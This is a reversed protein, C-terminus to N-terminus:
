MMVSDAHGEGSGLQKRSGDGGKAVTAASIGEMQLLLGYYDSTCMHDRIQPKQMRGQDCVVDVITSSILM